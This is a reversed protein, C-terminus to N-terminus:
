MVTYLGLAEDASIARQYMVFTDMYGVFGRDVASGNQGIFNMTLDGDIPYLGTHQLLLQGDTYVQPSVCAHPVVTSLTDNYSKYAHIYTHM